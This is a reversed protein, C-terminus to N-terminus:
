QLITWKLVKFTKVSSNVLSENVLASKSLCLMVEREADQQHYQCSSPALLWSYSRWRCWSEEPEVRRWSYPSNLSGSEDFESPLAVLSVTRKDQLSLFATYVPFIQVQNQGTQLIMVVCPSPQVKSHSHLSVTPLSQNCLYGMLLKVSLDIRM